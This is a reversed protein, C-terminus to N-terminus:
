EPGSVIEFGEGKCVALGGEINYAEVFGLEIMIPLTMSGRKGSGCYILYTGEKDLQDLNTRFDDEYFDINVASKLHETEFEEPTRVDLVMFNPNDVNEQIIELGRSAPVNILTREETDLEGEGVEATQGVCGSVLITAIFLIGILLRNGM